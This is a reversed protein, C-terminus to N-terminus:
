RVINYTSFIDVKYRCRINRTCEIFNGLQELKVNQFLEKTIMNFRKMAEFINNRLKLTDHVVETYFKRVSTLNKCFEKVYPRQHKQINARTMIEEVVGFGNSKM